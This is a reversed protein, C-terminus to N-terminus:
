RHTVQYANKIQITNYDTLVLRKGHGRSLRTVQYTSLQVKRVEGRYHAQQYDEVLEVVELDTGTDQLIAFLHTTKEVGNRMEYALTRIDLNLFCKM